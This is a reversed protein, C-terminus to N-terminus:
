GMSHAQHLLRRTSCRLCLPGSYTLHYAEHRQHRCHCTLHRKELIVNDVVKELKTIRSVLVDQRIAASVYKFRPCSIFETAKVKAALEIYTHYVDELEYRDALTLTDLMREAMTDACECSQGADPTDKAPIPTTNPSPPTPAHHRLLVPTTNPSLPTPAHHHLLLPSAPLNRHPGLHPLYALGILYTTCMRVVRECSVYHALDVLGWVNEETIPQSHTPYLLRLLCLVDAARQQQLVVEMSGTQRVHQLLASCQWAVVASHVHFREGEALLVLDCGERPESFSHKETSFEKFQRAPSTSGANRDVPSLPLALISDESSVSSTSEVSDQRSFLPRFNKVFSSASSHSSLSSSLSSDSSASVDLRRDEEGFMVKRRSRFNLPELSSMPDQFNSLSGSPYRQRNSFTTSLEERSKRVDQLECGDQERPREDPMDEQCFVDNAAGDCCELDDTHAGSSSLDHSHTSSNCDLSDSTSELVSSSSTNSSAQLTEGIGSDSSLSYRPNGWVLRGRTALGRCLTSLRSITEKDEFFSSKNLKGCEELFQEENSSTVSTRPEEKVPTLFSIHRGPDNGHPKEEDLSFHDEPSSSSDRLKRYFYHGESHSTTKGEPLFTYHDAKPLDKEDIWCVQSEKEDCNMQGKEKEDGWVQSKEKEDDLVQSKLKKDCCVQSREEEKRREQSGEKGVSWVQSDEKLSEESCDTQINQQNERSNMEKTFLALRKRSFSEDFCNM